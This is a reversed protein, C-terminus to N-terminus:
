STYFLNICFQREISSLGFAFANKSKHGQNQGQVSLASIYSSSRSIRFSSQLDLSEFTVTDCVPPCVPMRSLICQWAANTPPILLLTWLTLSRNGVTSSLPFRLRFQCLMVPCYKGQTSSDTAFFKSQSNPPQDGTRLLSVRGSPTSSSGDAPREAKV